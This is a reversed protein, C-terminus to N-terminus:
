NDTVAVTFQTYPLVPRDQMHSWFLQRPWTGENRSDPLFAYQIIVDKLLKNIEGSFQLVLSLEALTDCFYDGTHYLSM